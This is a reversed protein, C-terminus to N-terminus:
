TMRAVSLTPLTWVVAAPSQCRRASCGRLNRNLRALWLTLWEVEVLDEVLSAVIAAKGVFARVADPDAHFVGGSGDEVGRRDDDDIRGDGLGIPGVRPGLDGPVQDPRRGHQIVGVETRAVVFDAPALGTAVM